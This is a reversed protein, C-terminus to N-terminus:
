HSCRRSRARAPQGGPPAPAAPPAPIRASTASSTAVRWSAAQTMRPETVQRLEGPSRNTTVGRGRQGRGQRARPFRGTSSRRDVGDSVLDPHDLQAGLRAAQEPARAPVRRV